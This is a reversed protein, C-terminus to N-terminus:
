DEKGFALEMRKELSQNESVRENWLADDLRMMPFCTLASDPTCNVVDVGMEPLLPALKEFEPIFLKRQVDSIADALGHPHEGFWHQGHMDFGCLLIRRAGAHIAVHLAQYGSNNGTRIFSPDPDFGSKGSVQLQLVCDWPVVDRTIKLGEFKLAQQAHYAWWKADAAYLADAWPALRHTDNVVITVLKSKRVKNAVQQNM